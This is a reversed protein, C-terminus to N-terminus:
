LNPDLKVATQLHEIATDARGQVALALAFNYHLTPNSADIALARGIPEIAAQPEGRQLAIIGLHHLSAVNGRDLALVQRYIGAARRDKRNMPDVGSWRIAPAAVRSRGRRSAVLPRPM